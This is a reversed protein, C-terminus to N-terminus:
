GSGRKSKHAPKAPTAKAIAELSCLGTPRNSNRRRARGPAADVRRSYKRRNRNLGSPFYASAWDSVPIATRLTSGKRTANRTGASFALSV